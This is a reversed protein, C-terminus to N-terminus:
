AHIGRNRGQPRDGSERSSLTEVMRWGQEGLAIMLAKYRADFVEDSLEKSTDITRFDLSHDAGHRFEIILDADIVTLQSLPNQSNLLITILAM